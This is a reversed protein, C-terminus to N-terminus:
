GVLVMRITTPISTQIEALGRSSQSAVTLKKITRKPGKFWYRGGLGFALIWGVFSVLTVNGICISAYNLTEKESDACEGDLIESHITGVKTVPYLQPFLVSVLLM